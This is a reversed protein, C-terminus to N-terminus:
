TLLEVRADSVTANDEAFEVSARITSGALVQPLWYRADDWMRTWPLEDMAHWEPDIEDSVVPVGDWAHATFVHVDQDWAPKAPFRFSVTGAGTLADPMVRVQAEEFSERVAADRPEEDVEVHGGLGVVRGSGLGNRKSGLLVQRSETDIVFLLCM